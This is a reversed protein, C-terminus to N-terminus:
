FASIYIYSKVRCNNRSRCGNYLAWGVQIRPSKTPVAMRMEVMREKMKKVTEHRRQTNAIQHKLVTTHTYQWSIFRDGETVVSEVQCLMVPSSM